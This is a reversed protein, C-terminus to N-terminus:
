TERARRRRRWWLVFIVFMVLAVPIGYLGIQSFVHEVSRGGYYAALSM